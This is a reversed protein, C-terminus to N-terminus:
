CNLTTVITWTHGGDQTTADASSCSIMSEHHVMATAGDIRATTADGAHVSSGLGLNTYKWHESDTSALATVGWGSAGDGTCVLWHTEIGDIITTDDAIVVGTSTYGNPSVQIGAATCVDIASGDHVFATATMTTTTSTAEFPGHLSDLDDISVSTALARWQAQDDDTASRWTSDVPELVLTPAAAESTSADYTGILVGYGDTRVDWSTTDSSTADITVTTWRNAALDLTAIEGFHGAAPDKLPAVIVYNATVVAPSTPRVPIDAIRRWTSASPDFFGITGDPVMKVVGNSIAAELFADGYEHGTSWACGRDAEACDLWGPDPVASWLDNATDYMWPQELAAVDGPGIDRGMVLAFRGAVSTWRMEVGAPPDSIRDVSLDRRVVVGVHDPGPAWLGDDGVVWHDIGILMSGDVEVIVPLVQDSVPGLGLDIEIWSLTPRDLVWMGFTGASRTIVATRHGLGFSQAGLTEARDFPLPVLTGDTLLVASAADIPERGFATLLRATTGAGPSVRVQTRGAARQEDVWSPPQTAAAFDAFALEVQEGDQKALVTGWLDSAVMTWGAPLSWWSVSGDPALRAVVWMSPEGFDTDPALNPGIHTSYVGAGGSTPAPPSPGVYMGARDPAAEVDLQWSAGTSSEVRGGLDDVRLTEDATYFPPAPEGLTTPQGNVDVYGIATAGDDRRMIVGAEGHGFSSPPYELYRNINAPEDAVVTGALEGSLAVAVVAFDDISDGQRTSYAVDGPGYAIMGGLGVDVEVARATGDFGLVEIRDSGDAGYPWSAVAVGLDGIAVSYGGVMPEPVRVTGLSRLALEPPPERYTVGDSRGDAPVSTAVIPAETTSPAAPVTAATSDAVTSVVPATTSSEVLEITDGDRLLAVSGLFALVVAAAAAVWRWRRSRTVGGAVPEGAVDGARSDLRTFDAWERDGDIRLEVDARTADILERIPDDM